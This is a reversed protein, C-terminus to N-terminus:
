LSLGEGRNGGRAQGRGRTHSGSPAANAGALPGEKIGSLQSQPGWWKPDDIFPCTSAFHTSDKCLVCRPGLHKKAPDILPTYKYYGKRIPVGSFTDLIAQWHTANPTCPRMFVVLTKGDPSWCPDISQTLAYRCEDLSRPNHPTYQALARGLVPSFWIHESLAAWCSIACADTGAGGSVSYIPGTWPVCM